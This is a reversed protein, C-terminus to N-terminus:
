SNHHCSATIGHQLRLLCPYRSAREGVRTGSCELVGRIQHSPDAIAANVAATLDFQGDCDAYPCPFAFFARAPPYLVHCQPAPINTTTGEFQLDLRLQQVAPFASRLAQAAARDRRLRDTREQRSAAASLPTLKLDRERAGPRRPAAVGDGCPGHRPRRSSHRSTAAKGAAAGKQGTREAKESSPLKTQGRARQPHFQLIVAWAPM